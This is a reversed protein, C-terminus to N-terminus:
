IITHKTHYVRFCPVICLPVNCNPCYYRSEKRIKKGKADRVKACLACVRTPNAKKDTAPIYEPFHRGTLRTPNQVTSPRGVRISVNADPRYYKEFMLRIVEMRYQLATKTGHSKKYMVFSNWLALDLLHFFLKKYYKKGRKRPLAYDSLHQDVRDVGGMTDNYDIVVQPKSVVKNRKQVDVKTLDHLTSLLAVDKKDRWKMVAVKGRQYGILEGKNLKRQLGKPVDKRNVKLTGYVDTQHTILIDALRPCNYYNDMTLCYGKGFLPEALTLVVQMSVLHDRFEPNLLTGHGTYILFNWVYGSKSECLLYTKIGFRARKLPIYQIWGLRGKYLLLSEDITINQEPTCMSRFNTVLKTYIPWIKNLKPNPHTQPDYSDNDEFHLFQKIHHFRRCTMTQPFFPTALMPNNSWYLKMDPKKVISQLIVLAFFVMLEDSTVAKWAKSTSSQPKERIYSDAFRNTEVVIIDVIDNSFLKEFFQLLNEDEDPVFNLKASASFPFRPRPLTHENMECWNRAEGFVDPGHLEDSSSEESVTDSESGSVELADEIYSYDGEADFDDSSEGDMIIITSFVTCVALLM